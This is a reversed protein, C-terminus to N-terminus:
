YTYVVVVGDAGNGGAGSLSGNPSAGGGGGGGGYLAGNGGTGGAGSNNGGGGGGGFGPLYSGTAYGNGGAGGGPTGASASSHAIAYPSGNTGGAQQSGLNNVGGGGGGGGAGLTSNGTSPYTPTVAGDGGVGGPFVGVQGGAGGAVPSTGIVGGLGGQGAYANLWSGFSTVGGNNGPNGDTFDTTQGAGGTGGTGVTVTETAGLHAIPITIESYCGGGGASGGTAPASGYRRGSGGGGGAGIAVIRVFSGSAPKTWTGNSTFIQTDIPQAPLTIWSPAASNVGDGTQALIKQTSTTNGALRTAAGSAGGYIIDGLTTMPSLANFAANATTQGTGGNTITLAGTVASSSALNVQGFGLVTGASNVRLVQNATGAIDAVNALVNTANGIVSLAVSQRLYQNLISNNKVSATIFPVDSNYTFDITSSDVLISGVANQAMANTYQTVGGNITITGNNSVSFIITGASNAIQFLVLSSPASPSANIILGPNINNTNIVQNTNSNSPGFYKSHIAM